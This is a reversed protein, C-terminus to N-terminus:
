EFSVEQRIAFADKRLLDLAEDWNEFYDEELLNAATNMADVSARLAACLRLVTEPNVSAIFEADQKKQVGTYREDYTGDDVVVDVKHQKSIGEILGFGQYGNCSQWPGPTAAKAKEELESLKIM